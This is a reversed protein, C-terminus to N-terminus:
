FDATCMFYDANSATNAVNFRRPVTLTLNKVKRLWTAHGRSMVRERLLGPSWPRVEGPTLESPLNIMEDETMNDIDGCYVYAEKITVVAIPHSRPLRDLVDLHACWRKIGIESLNVPVVILFTFTVLNIQESTFKLIYKRPSTDGDSNPRVTASAYFLERRLMILTNLSSFLSSDHCLIKAALM